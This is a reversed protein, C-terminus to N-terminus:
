LESLNAHTKNVILLRIIKSIRNLSNVTEISKVISLIYKKKKM